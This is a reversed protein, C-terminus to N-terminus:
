FTNRSLVADGPGNQAHGSDVQTQVARCLLPSRGIRYETVAVFREPIMRLAVWEKGLAALNQPMYEEWHSEMGDSSAGSHELENKVQTAQCPSNLTSRM